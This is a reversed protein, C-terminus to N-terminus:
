RSLVERSLDLRTAALALLEPAASLYWYTSRPDNHGLYVSLTPLLAEVDAGERYWRLLTRVAFTHRVDHIRPRISSGAGVGSIDCIRRFAQQFPQYLLRTGRMSVFFSSSSAELCLRDRIDAYNALAVTTSGLLPINRSKGFKTANITLVGEDWAIDDRNLRIVEGIRMGTAALLGIVTERTAAPLPFRGQRAEAMLAAINEPSYIFPQRWRQHHNPILGPPPVETRGDLAAMHRAFGRAVRMRRPWVTSTPSVDPAQAWSLAAAVTVTPEGVSDLYAVFRPLLRHAEALDHGFSRRLELYEDATDSLASM